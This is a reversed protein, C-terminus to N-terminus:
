KTNIDNKGLIKSKVYDNFLHLRYFSFGAQLKIWLYM